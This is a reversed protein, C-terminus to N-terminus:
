GGPRSAVQGGIIADATKKRSRLPLALEEGWEREEVM